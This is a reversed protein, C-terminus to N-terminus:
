YSLSLFFSVSQDLSKKYYINLYQNVYSYRNTSSETLLNSPTQPSPSNASTVTFEGSESGISSFSTNTNDNFSDEQSSPPRVM